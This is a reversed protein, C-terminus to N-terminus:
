GALIEDTLVGRVMCANTHLVCEHNGVHIYYGM